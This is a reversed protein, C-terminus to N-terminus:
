MMLRELVHYVVFGPWVIAQFFAAVVQWFGDAHNIFYVLAGIYAVFMAFGSPAHKYMTKDKAM